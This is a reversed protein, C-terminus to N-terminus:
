GQITGLRELSYENSFDYNLLLDDYAIGPGIRPSTNPAIGDYKYRTANYNQFVAAATLARRYIRIDGMRGDWNNLTNSTGIRAGSFNHWHEVASVASDDVTWVEVGNLYGKITVETAGTKTIVFHGWTNNPLQGFSQTGVHISNYVMVQQSSVVDFKFTRGNLNWVHNSNSQVDTWLWTEYTWDNDTMTLGGYQDDKLEIYDDTGDFEFYGAPNHAVTNTTTTETTGGSISIAPSIYEENGSFGSFHNINGDSDILPATPVTYGSTGAGVYVFPDLVKADTNYATGSGGFFWFNENANVSAGSVGNNTSVVATGDLFGYM